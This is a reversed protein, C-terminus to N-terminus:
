KKIFLQGVAVYEGGSQNKLDEIEKNKEGLAKEYATVQDTSKQLTAQLEAIQAAREGAIKEAAALQEVTKDVNGGKRRLIAICGPYVSGVDVRLPIRGNQELLQGNFAVGIHGDGNGFNAGYVIIDGPQIDSVKDFLSLVNPNTPWDKANGRPQYPIGFVKDLYQQVLSVCQGPYTGIPNDKDATGPNGVQGQTAAWDKFEALNM